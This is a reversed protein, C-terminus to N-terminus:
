RGTGRKVLEKMVLDLDEFAAVLRELRQGFGEGIVERALHYMELHFDRHQRYGTWGRETLDLLTERADDEPHVRRVMGKKVLRAIM